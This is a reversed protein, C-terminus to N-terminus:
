VLCHFYYDSHYFINNEKGKGNNMKENKFKTSVTEIFRTERTALTLKPENADVSKHLFFKCGTFNTFCFHWYKKKPKM